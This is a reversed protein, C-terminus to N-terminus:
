YQSPVVDAFAFTGDSNAIAKYIVGNNSGLETLSLRANTVPRGATDVVQGEVSLTSTPRQQTWTSSAFTAFLICRATTNM